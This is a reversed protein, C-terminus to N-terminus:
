LGMGKQRAEFAAQDAEKQHRIRAAAAESEEARRAAQRDRREDLMREQEKAERQEATLKPKAPKKAAPKKAPTSKGDIAARIQAITSDKTLGKVGAKKAEALWDAKTKSAM